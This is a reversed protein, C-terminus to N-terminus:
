KLVDVLYGVGQLHSIVEQIHEFGRTELEILVETKGIPLSKSRRDHTIISINAKAEAIETALRALAGPLDDLEVKLKLYRGAAVLGREVVVSITKVDINGGSLVCVTKGSLDTVRRNLLAALPVAGAGEVLLKTRELLAVIALAIEEEEVLVVEDVLDRIIPFTNVGPKKVAIGDALTVTVPVQVIKGKQLSYHASPAAATEVGIIRVHPHTERIATAIGAILGGGGIPVLINAVDPLEQLVELGITGQGAMVLPDDFPHVFLAGREEQAQVAAAYAEDFNRGTLVVEAGYDRTAFVKQPPTSEPMFVTSPVGLLDASFAVGQAHNGASATIVGKALAERPQSTMFNLAGRIKFAGTRQLNECKFYIPIGLKESFHHSHILETRRVRKRLRDDAEQILTYPLM